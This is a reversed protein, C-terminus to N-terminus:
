LEHIAQVVHYPVASPPVMSAEARAVEICKRRFKECQALAFENVERSHEWVMRGRLRNLASLWFESLTVVQDLLAQAEDDDLSWTVASKIEKEYSTREARLQLLPKKM